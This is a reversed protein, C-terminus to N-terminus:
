RCTFAKSTAKCKREKWFASILGLSGKSDSQHGANKKFDDFKQQDKENLKISTTLPATIMNTISAVDLRAYISRDPSQLPRKGLPWCIAVRECPWFLITVEVIFTEGRKDARTEIPLYSGIGRYPPRVPMKLYISYSNIENKRTTHISLLYKKM